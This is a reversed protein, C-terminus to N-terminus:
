IVEEGDSPLWSCLASWGFNGIELRQETDGSANLLFPLAAVAESAVDSPRSEGGTTPISSDEARM